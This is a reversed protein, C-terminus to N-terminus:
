LKVVTGCELFLKDTGIVAADVLASTSRPTGQLLMCFCPLAHSTTYSYIYIYSAATSSARSPLVRSCGRQCRAIWLLLRVHLARFERLYFSFTSSGFGAFRQGQALVLFDLLAKQESNLGAVFVEHWDQALAPRRHM